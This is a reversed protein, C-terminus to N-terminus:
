VHARGIESTGAGVPTYDVVVWCSLRPGISKGACRDSDISFASSGTMTIALKGSKTSSSNGLRFGRTLISGGDVAGFDYSTIDHGGQSRSWKLSTSDSKGQGVAPAVLVVVGAVAAAVFLWRTRKMRNTEAM